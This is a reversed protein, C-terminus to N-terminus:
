ALINLARLNSLLVNFDTVLEPVTAAVSDAQSISKFAAGSNVKFSATQMDWDGVAKTSLSAEGLYLTGGSDPMIQWGTRSGLCKLLLTQFGADFFGVDGFNPGFTNGWQPGRALGDTDFTKLQNGSMEIREGSTATRITAGTVTGATVEGLDATIASLQTVSMKDATITDAAINSGTITTAAVKDGTITGGVIKDGTITTGAIKDGTITTGAIKTGTITEAAIKDGTISEAVVVKADLETVNLTDLNLLLNQLEGVLTNIKAIIDDYQPNPPLSTFTPIPM